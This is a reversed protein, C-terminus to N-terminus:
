KSFIQICLKATAAHIQAKEKRYLFLLKIERM